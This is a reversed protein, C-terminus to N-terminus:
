GICRFYPVTINAAVDALENAVSVFEDVEHAEVANAMAQTQFTCIRQIFSSSRSSNAAPGVIGESVLSASSARRHVVTYMLASLVLLHHSHALWPVVGCIKCTALSIEAVPQQIFDQANM